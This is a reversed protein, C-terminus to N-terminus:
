QGNIRRSQPRRTSSTRRPAAGMSRMAPGGLYQPRRVGVTGHSVAQERSGREDRSQALVECWDLLAEERVGVDGGGLRAAQATRIEEDESALLVVDDQAIEPAHREEDVSVAPRRATRKENGPELRLHAREGPQAPEPPSDPSWVNGVESPDFGKRPRQGVRM